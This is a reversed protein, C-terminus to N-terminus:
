ECGGENDRREIAMMKRVRGGHREEAPYETTLWTDVIDLALGVGTVREGLTLVNADNHLRSMRASYTDGCLAARIGRVKNAAISMGVGTGCVLIGVDFTGSVVSDAVALGIDPYDVRSEDHAGFDTVDANQDSLHRLIETKLRYGAHDSGIAIRMCPIISHASVAQLACPSVGHRTSLADPLNTDDPMM